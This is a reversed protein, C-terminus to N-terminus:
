SHRISGFTQGQMNLTAISSQFSSPRGGAQTQSQVSEMDFQNSLMQVEVCVFAGDVSVHRSNTRANRSVKHGTQYLFNRM